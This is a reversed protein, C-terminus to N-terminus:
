STLEGNLVAPQQRFARLWMLACGARQVHTENTCVQAEHFKLIKRDKLSIVTDAETRVAM